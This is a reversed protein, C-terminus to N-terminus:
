CKLARTTHLLIDIKSLQLHYCLVLLMGVTVRLSHIFWLVSEPHIPVFWSMTPLFHSVATKTHLLIDIKASNYTVCLSIRPSYSCIMVYNAFHSLLKQTYSYILNQQTTLWVCVIFLLNQTVIDHCLQCFPVATKTHLLIDITASNYTVCLSHFVSEPHIPVFWSM